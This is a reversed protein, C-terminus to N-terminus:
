WVKIKYLGDLLAVCAVSNPHPLLLSCVALHKVQKQHLNVRFIIKSAGVDSRLERM